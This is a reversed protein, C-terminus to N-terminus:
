VPETGVTQPTEVMEDDDYYRWGSTLTCYAIRGNIRAIHTLGCGECLGAEVMFGEDLNMAKQSVDIDPKPFGHKEACKNCFEAM